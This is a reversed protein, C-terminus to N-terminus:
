RGLTQYAGSWFDTEVPSSGPPGLVQTCLVAVLGEAPDNAWATGFGGNWGYGKLGSPEPPDIVSVGFGWGRGDLIPGATDRQAATLHDATMASVLDAALIRRGRHTGGALLMQGFTLYDGVTAVLGAGADTFARPRAWQDEDDFPTLAGEAELYAPVLRHLEGAPVVFGTDAM